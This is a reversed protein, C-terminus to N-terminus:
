TGSGRRIPALGSMLTRVTEKVFREEPLPLLDEGVFRRFFAFQYCAGLVLAAAGIPSARENVRGQRQEARIYAAFGEYARHPGLDRERLQKVHSRLLGPSAFMSANMAVIGSFFDLAARVVAEVHAQVTRSGARDPLSSLLRFFEPASPNMCALLLEEKSDFHKYITGEACGAARAIERTTTANLGRSEIVRRAAEM